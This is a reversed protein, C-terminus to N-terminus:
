SRDGTPLNTEIKANSKLQEVLTPIATNAKQRSLEERIQARAQDLTQGPYRDMASTYAGSIEEDTVSTKDAVLQRLMETLRLRKSLDDESLGAQQLAAQYEDDSGFKQRQEDLLSAVRQDDVAVGRRKAEAFVLKETILGDLIEGGQGAAARDYEARRIPEGDVRAVVADAGSRDRRALVVTSAALGIILLAALASVAIFLGRPIRVVSRDDPEYDDYEDAQEDDEVPAATMLEPHSEDRPTDLPPTLSDRADVPEPPPDGAHPRLDDNKTTM